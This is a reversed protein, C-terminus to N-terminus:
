IENILTQPLCAHHIKDWIMHLHSQAGFLERLKILKHKRLTLFSGHFVANLGHLLYNNLAATIKVNADSLRKFITAVLM